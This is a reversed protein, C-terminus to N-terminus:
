QRGELRKTASLMIFVIGAPGLGSAAVRGLAIAAAGWGAGAGVLLAPAGMMFSGVWFVIAPTQTAASPRCLTGHLPAARRGASQAADQRLVEDPRGGGRHRPRRRGRRRGGQGDADALAGAQYHFLLPSTMLAYFFATSVILPVREAMAHKDLASLKRTWEEKAAVEQRWFLFAFLRLGYALVLQAHLKLLPAAGAGAARLVAGGIRRGRARVLALLRLGPPDHRARVAGDRDRHM